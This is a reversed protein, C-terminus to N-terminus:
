RRLRAAGASAPPLQDARHEGRHAQGADDGDRLRPRHPLRVDAHAAPARLGEDGNCLSFKASTGRSGPYGPAVMVACGVAVAVAVAAADDGALSRRPRRNWTCRVETATALRA